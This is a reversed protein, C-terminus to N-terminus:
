SNGATPVTASLASFRSTSRSSRTLDDIRWTLSRFGESPYPSSSPSCLARRRARRSASSSLGGSLGAGLAGSMIGSMSMLCCVSVRSSIAAAPLAGSVEASFAAPSFRRMSTAISADSDALM